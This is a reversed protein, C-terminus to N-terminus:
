TNDSDMEEMEKKRKLEASVYPNVEIARTMAQQATKVFDHFFETDVDTVFMEVVKKPLGTHDQATYVSLNGDYKFTSTQMVLSQKDNVIMLKVSNTPIVYIFNIRWFFNHLWRPLFFLVKPLGIYVSTVKKNSIIDITEGLYEGIKHLGTTDYRYVYKIDPRKTALCSKAKNTMINFQPTKKPLFARILLVIGVTAFLIVCGIILIIGIVKIVSWIWGSNAIFSNPADININPANIAVPM